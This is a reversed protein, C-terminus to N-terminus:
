TRQEGFIFSPAFSEGGTAKEKARDWGREEARQVLSSPTVPPPAGLRALAALGMSPVIMQNTSVPTSSYLVNHPLLFPAITEQYKRQV